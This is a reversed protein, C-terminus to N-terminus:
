PTLASRGLDLLQKDSMAGIDVAVEKVVRRFLQQHHHHLYDSLQQAANSHGAGHGVLVIRGGHALAQVVAEHYTAEEAERQEDDRGQDRHALHRLIRDPDNPRIVHEAKDASRLDLHFLRAAGEEVVVLMDGGLAADTTTPAAKATPDGPGWGARSLLHRLGMVEDTMLSHGHSKAVHHHEDGISYTVASNEGPKVTGLKSFLAVVDMRDLNHAVPHRYFMELTRRNITSLAARDHIPPGFSAKIEFASMLRVKPPKTGTRVWSPGTAFISIEGKARPDVPDSNV